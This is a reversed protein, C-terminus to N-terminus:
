KRRGIAYKRGPKIELYEIEYSDLMSVALAVGPIQCDDFMVVDGPEQLDALLKGEKLVVDANHKGDVFAVHIRETQRKLWDVGTSQEFWIGAAEPWPALMEHLTKHGGVESVTNRRVRAFPDLVDVSYIKAVGQLGWLMCLASFGKATGIDLFAFATDALGNMRRTYHATLSSLVRGHQWNPPNTKVPCALVRAAEEIKGRDIVYGMRQEFADVVPYEVQREAEFVRAYDAATVTPREQVTM